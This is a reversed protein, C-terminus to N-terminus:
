HGHANTVRRVKQFEGHSSYVTSLSGPDNVSITNPGVRSITMNITYHSLDTQSIEPTSYLLEGFIPSLHLLHVPYTACSTIDELLYLASSLYPAGCLLLGTLPCIQSRFIWRQLIFVIFFPNFSDTGKHRDSIGLRGPRKAPM